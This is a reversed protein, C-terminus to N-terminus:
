QDLREKFQLLRERVEDPWAAPKGASDVNVLTQETEFRTEEGCACSITLGFSTRGVRTAALSLILHDGLRSPRIFRTRIEATPVAGNQHIELFPWEAIASFFTEICDNIMEFYRPYFVIGAPDCHKFSVPQHYRFM